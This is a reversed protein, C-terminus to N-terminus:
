VTAPRKFDWASKDPDMFTESPVSLLHVLQQEVYAALHAADSERGEGGFYVNRLLAARLHGVTDEAKLAADYALASGRFGQQMEKLASSIQLFDDVGEAKMDLMSQHWWHEFMESAVHNGRSQHELRLRVHCLWVHLGTVQFTGHYTSPVHFDRVFEPRLAQDRCKLFSAMAVRDNISEQSYFGALRYLWSTPSTPSSTSSFARAAGRVRRAIFSGTAM